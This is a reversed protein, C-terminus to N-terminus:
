VSNIESETLFRWAGEELGEDLQISGVKERHLSVVRNSLAAFMRKVQHYKGEHITLLVEKASLVELEASRTLQAEDKLQIGQKFQATADGQLADALGIRYRKGCMKKPSTIRHSWAGDDTILVLGTTDIDLRGAIHLSEPNDVGLLVMVSRSDDNISTCVTEAPKHLMIYRAGPLLIRRGLLCVEAQDAIKLSPDKILVGGVSVEGKSIIKKAQTRSFKTCATIFKDLRM